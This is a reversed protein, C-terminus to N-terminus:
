PLTHTHGTMGVAAAVRSAWTSQPPARLASRDTRSARRYAMGHAMSCRVVRWTAPATFQVNSASVASPPFAIYGLDAMAFMCPPRQPARCLSPPSRTSCPVDRSQSPPLPHPRSPTSIPRRRILYRCVGHGPAALPPCTCLLRKVTSSMQAPRQSRQMTVM